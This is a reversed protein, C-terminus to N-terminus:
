TVTVITDGTVRVGDSHQRCSFRGVVSSPSSPADNTMGYRMVAESSLEQLVYLDLDGAECVTVPHISTAVEM